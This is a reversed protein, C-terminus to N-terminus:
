SRRGGLGHRRSGDHVLFPAPGGSPPLGLRVVEAVLVVPVFVLLWLLPTDRIDRILRSMRPEESRGPQRHRQGLHHAPYERRSLDPHLGAGSGPEQGRGPSRGDVATMTMAGSLGGLLLIPNMRLVWAGFALGVLLPTFTVVLGGFLLGVGATRLAEVFVPGAHLGTMAVFAALGLSTMLAIAGDPIRGFLPFRTRLHGVLLGAMLAGVSTGIVVPIGGISFRLLTGALGGFFIALGLVVFDTSTSPAIVTGIRPFAQEVVSQPGHIRLVDGREITLGGSLPLPQRGRLLSHLHIGRAWPQAAAEALTRGVLGKATVLVDLNLYPADLLDEDEVEEASGLVDLIAGLRGGVALVDGGRFRLDPSAEIIEGDRRLRLVYLRSDAHRREAEAVTEGVSRADERMRFARLVVPVYGSSLGPVPREVGLERELAAAEAM